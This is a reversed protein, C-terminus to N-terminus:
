LIEACNTPFSTKPINPITQAMLILLCVMCPLNFFLLFPPISEPKGEIDFRKAVEELEPIGNYQSLLQQIYGCYFRQSASIFNLYHKSLKRREVPRKKDDRLQM